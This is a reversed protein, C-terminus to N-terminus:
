WQSSDEHERWFRLPDFPSSSPPREIQDCLLRAAAPALLIGHRFHGINLWLNSLHGRGIGPQHDRLAPRFGIGFEMVELEYIGRLFQWSHYLLDLLHGAKKKHCFGEEEMTAGIYLHGEERPIMYVDPTRITHQILEEGKLLLYHGKVPRLPLWDLLPQQASWAGDAVVINEAELVDGRELRISQIRKGDRQFSLSEFTKLAVGAHCLAHQLVRQLSRPDISYSEASFLGGALRPALNEELSRLARITLRQCELGHEQQFARLQELESLHDRHQALFLTGKQHYGASQQSADELRQVWTPYLRLSEQALGLLASGATDAEFAPTLMGGAAHTAAGVRNKSLVLVSKGRNHAEWATALAAIGGGIILLDM